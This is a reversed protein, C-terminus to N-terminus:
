SATRTRGTRPKRPGRTSIKKTARRASKPLHKEKWRGYRLGPPVENPNRCIANATVPVGKRVQAARLVPFTRNGVTVPKGDENGALVLWWNRREGSGAAEWEAEADNIMELVDPYDAKLWKKITMVAEILRPTEL